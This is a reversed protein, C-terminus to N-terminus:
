DNGQIQEAENQLLNLARLLVQKVEEVWRQADRDSISQPIPVQHVFLEHVRQKRLSTSGTGTPAYAGQWRTQPQEWLRRKSLNTLEENVLQKLRDVIASKEKESIKKQEPLWKLPSELFRTLVNRTQTILTDIPRLYYSDFWGEAHRRSMAKISQWAVPSIGEVRKYGLRAAWVEQFAVSAERVALGLSEFSYEPVSPRLLEPNARKVLHETMCWLDSGLSQDFTVRDDADWSEPYKKPDLYGLYFTSHDLHTALQRAAERSVNRSVENEVLSRLGSFAKEKRDEPTPIDDGVVLDMHSLAVTLNATYGSGAIAEMVKRASQSKLSDKGSEVFLINQVKAFMSTTDSSLETTPKEHDLGQTDVFVHEYSAGDPVWDPRFPGSVRIGTVLPTLLKGWEEKTNSCFWRAAKLFDDREESPASYLWAEPWGTSSKRFKGKPLALFRAEIEEIIDNVLDQFAESAEGARQMEDLAYSRDEDKLTGLAGLIDEIEFRAAAAISRITTLSTKLFASYETAPREEKDATPAGFSLSGGAKPRPPNWGGLTYKLRFRQDTDDLLDKMVADDSESEIAKLVANSLSETVEQQTQHRSLFTVAASFEGRGTIIEIECTTTRNTSTAPFRDREADCGILRRLLTTKGVGSNGLILTRVAEGPVMPPLPLLRERLTRHSTASPDLDDYFIEVIAPDFERAAAVRSGVSHLDERALLANLQAELKKAVTEDDTGLGKFVKKGPRGDESKLPHRFTIVYGKRGPNKKATATYPTKM